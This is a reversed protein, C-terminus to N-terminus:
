RQTPADSVFRGPRNTTVMRCGLGLCRRFAQADDVTYACLMRGSSLVQRAAAETLKRHDWHVIQAGTRAVDALRADTPAGGGRAALLLRPEALPVQELWDWDFAQVIVDDTAGLRRLEAVLAAADGGKREVMPVAPRIADLAEALTAVREGRYADGFWSGADLRQLEDYSLEATRAGERGLSAVADTTRDLTADHMCVWVGDRSQDVDLEGVPAGLAVAHRFAALTNEPRVASAGRHAVVAYPAAQELRAHASPPACAAAGLALAALAHSAGRM